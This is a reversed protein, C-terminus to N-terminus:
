AFSRFLLICVKAKKAKKKDKKEKKKKAKEGDGSAELEAAKRKKGKDGSQETTEAIPEIKVETKVEVVKAPAAAGNNAAAAASYDVYTNSWSSPTNQNPRGYKDLKGESILKKKMQARPGKGWGRPYTDREMVVRKIKAVVGHDCTAMDATSMMAIGTTCCLHM